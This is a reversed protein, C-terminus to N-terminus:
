EAILVTQLNEINLRVAPSLFNRERHSRFFLFTKRFNMKLTINAKNNFIIPEM